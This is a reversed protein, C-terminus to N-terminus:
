ISVSDPHTVTDSTSPLSTLVISSNGTCETAEVTEGSTSEKWSQHQFVLFHHIAGPLVLSGIEVVAKRHFRSEKLNSELVDQAGKRM